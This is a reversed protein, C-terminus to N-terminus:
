STGLGTQSDLSLSRAPIFFFNSVYLDTDFADAKEPSWENDPSRHLDSRFQGIERLRGDFFFLGTYGLNELLGRVVQLNGTEIEIQLNPRFTQLLETAGNLVKLEYGEVDIKVFGIPEDPMEQLVIDDLKQIATVQETVNKGAKVWENNLLSSLGYQYDPTRLVGEGPQDGAAVTCVICNSPLVKALFAYNKLPEVCLCKTSLSSLTLSYQGLLAGVDVAAKTPDTFQLLHDFEGKMLTRYWIPYIREDGEGTHLKDRMSQPWKATIEALINERHQTCYRDSWM